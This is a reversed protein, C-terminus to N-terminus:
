QDIRILWLRKVMQFVVNATNNGIYPWFHQFFDDFIPHGSQVVDSGATATWLVRHLVLTSTCSWHPPEPGTHHHMVCSNLMREGLHRRVRIRGDHHQLCIRSEDTFAVENWEAVWM